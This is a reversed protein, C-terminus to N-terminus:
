YGQYYHIARATEGGLWETRENFRRTWNDAEENMKEMKLSYAMARCLELDQYGCEEAKKGFAVANRYKSERIELEARKAWALGLEPYDRTWRAATRELEAHPLISSKISGIRMLYKEQSGPLQSLAAPIASPTDRIKYLTTNEGQFVPEMFYKWFRQYELESIGSLNFDKEKLYMFEAERKQYLFYSVGEKRLLSALDEATRCSSAWKLFIPQKWFFDVFATRRLPYTQYLGFALVKDKEDSNMEIQRYAAFTDWDYYYNRKLREISGELGLASAYPATSTFQASLCLWFSVILGATFVMRIGIGKQEFAEAWGMAALLVMVMAGVAAHRFNTCAMLWGGLFLVSFLGLFLGLRTKMPKWLWPLAMLLMPTWAANVSNDSTFFVRALLKGASLFSFSGPLGTDEWLSAELNTNYGPPGGFLSTALPYFPNGNALYNKLGWPIFPILFLVLCKLDLGLKSKKGIWMFVLILGCAGITFVATYKVALSCGMFFAACYLCSIDAPDELSKWLGFVATIEFLVLFGEVYGWTFIALFFPCSLFILWGTAASGGWEKAYLVILAAILIAPLACALKSLGEGGLNWFGALILEAFKPMDGTHNTWHFPIQHLRSIEKAYRFHDLIADWIIPPSFVEFLWPLALLALLLYMRGDWKFRPWGTLVEKYKPYGSLVGLLFFLVTLPRYLLGNVGLGFEWLSFGALNLIAGLITFRDVKRKRPLLRQFTGVWGIVGLGAFLFWLVSGLKAKLLPLFNNMDLTSDHILRLSPFFGSKGVGFIFIILLM